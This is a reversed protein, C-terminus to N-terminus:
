ARMTTEFDNFAKDFRTEWATLNRRADRFYPSLKLAFILSRNLARGWFRMPRNFDFLLVIREEDTDNWVEHEYIDDFVFCKGAQWSIV